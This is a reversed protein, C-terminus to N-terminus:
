KLTPLIYRIRFPQTIFNHANSIHKSIGSPSFFGKIYWMPFSGKFRQLKRHQPISIISQVLTEMIGASFLRILSAGPVSAAYYCVQLAQTSFATQSSKPFMLAFSLESTKKCCLVHMVLIASLHEPLWLLHLLIIVLYIPVIQLTSTIFFSLHFSSVVQLPSILPLYYFLFGLAESNTTTKIRAIAKQLSYKFLKCYRQAM